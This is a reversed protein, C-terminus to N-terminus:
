SEEDRSVKIYTNRYLPMKFDSTNWLKKFDSISIIRNYRVDNSNILDELSEAIYLNEEDYGIVPVYHLYSKNIYVKIFVIIPVGKSIEKKLQAVNGIRLTTKFGQKNFLRVIGKPYVYGSRMKNPIMKYIDDGKAQIGYHRMLYATSYASCEFHKQIDIHNDDAIIYTLPYKRKSFTPIAVGMLIFNIITAIALWTIISCIIRIIIEM